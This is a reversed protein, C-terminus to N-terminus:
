KSVKPLYEDGDAYRGARTIVFFSDEVGRRMVAMREIADADKATKNSAIVRVHHPQAFPVEIVDFAM